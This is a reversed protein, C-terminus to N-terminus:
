ANMGEIVYIHIIKILPVNKFDMIKLTLIVNSGFTDLHTIFIIKMLEFGKPKRIMLTLIRELKWFSHHVNSLFFSTQFFYPNDMKLTQISQVHLFMKSKHWIKLMYVKYNISFIGLFIHTDLNNHKVQSKEFMYFHLKLSHGNM